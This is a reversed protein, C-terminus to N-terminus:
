LIRGGKVLGAPKNIIIVDEDEFIIDLPIDEPKVKDFKDHKKPMTFSICEGPSIKYNSKVKKGDVLVAGEKIANQIRTRSVNALKALLFKDIRLPEQKPDVKIEVDEMERKDEEV